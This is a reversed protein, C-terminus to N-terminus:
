LHVGGGRGGIESDWFEALNEGTLIYETRELFPTLAEVPM